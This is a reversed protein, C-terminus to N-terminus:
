TLNQGFLTIQLSAFSEKKPFALSFQLSRGFHRLKLKCKLGIFTHECLVIIIAHYVEFQPTGKIIM